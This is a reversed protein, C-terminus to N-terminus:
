KCSGQGQRLPHRSFSPTPLPLTIKLVLLQTSGMHNIQGPEAKVKLGQVRGALSGVAQAGVGAGARALSTLAGATCGWSRASTGNLNTGGPPATIGMKCLLFSLGLSFETGSTM